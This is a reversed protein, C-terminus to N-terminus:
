AIKIWALAEEPANFYSVVVKTGTKIYTEVIDDVVMQQYVDKPMVFAIHSYGAKLAKEKWENAAWHQDDQNLTGQLRTDAIVKGTKFYEFASILRDMGARFEDPMLQIKWACVIAHADENYSISVYDTDYYLKM